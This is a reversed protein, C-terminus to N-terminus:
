LAMLTVHVPEVRVQILRLAMQASKTPEAKPALRMAHTVTDAAPATNGQPCLLATLIVVVHKLRAATLKCVMLAFKTPAAKLEQRTVFM